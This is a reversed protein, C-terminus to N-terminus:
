CIRPLLEGLPMPVVRTAGLSTRTAVLGPRGAEVEGIIAADRGLPHARWAALVEAAADAAVVAVCKGENAVHWPDLGLLDCAGRVEPKVPVRREDIVIGVASATAIENLTAALGGRTPDRLVRIRGDDHLICGVLGHLAACDSVIATEFALSERVSMVAIGHDGISGSLLVKDGPRAQAPGIPPLGSPVVGVGTTTVYLSDGHGREVVKTDGAVIQVGAAAAAAAMRAVVTGLVSMALGEEIVFGATLYLPTAGRMALDNVTGNVALEGISGGPFVLPRVVFGDTSLALRGAPVDVLSADGLADLAPNGFAPVFLHRVLEESLAGGGGHGLVVRPYDRLPLPCAWSEFDPGGGPGPLATEAM